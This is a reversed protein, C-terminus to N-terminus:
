WTAESAVPWGLNERDGDYVRRSSRARDSERAAPVPLDTEEVSRYEYRSRREAASGANRTRSRSRRQYARVVQFALVFVFLCAFGSTLSVGFWTAAAMFAFAAVLYREAVSRVM